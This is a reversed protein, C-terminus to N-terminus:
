RDKGRSLLFRPLPVLMATNKRYRTYHEKYKLALVKEEKRLTFLQGAVFLPYSVFLSGQSGLLLIIGLGMLDYGLWMPHRCLAYSGTTVLKKPPRFPNPTGKGQRTLDATARWILLTGGLLLLFGPFPFPKRQLSALIDIVKGIGLVLLPLFAWFILADRLQQKWIDKHFLTM